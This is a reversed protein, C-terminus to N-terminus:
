IIERILMFAEAFEVGITAGRYRALARIASPSRPLPEPQIETKYLAMIEEKRKFTTSVDTFVTALFANKQLQPAAETESPVECALIRKVGFSRMYIPKLASMAAQFVTRHDSHVDACHPIFVAEPRIQEVYKRISGIIQAPAIGELRTTPFKLWQMTKFPYAQRVAEIQRSQQAIQAAPYDPEHVSTVIMWNLAAGEAAFRLLTAGCGLTEDDPHVAIALIKKM